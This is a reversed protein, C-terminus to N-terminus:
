VKYAVYMETAYEEKNTQTQYNLVTFFLYFSARFEQAMFFYNRAPNPECSLLLHGVQARLTRHTREYSWTRRIKKQLERYKNDKKM